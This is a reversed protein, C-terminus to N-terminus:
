RVQGPRDGPRRQRYETINFNCKPCINAPMKPPTIDKGSNALAITYRAQIKMAEALCYQKCEPCKQMAVACQKKGCLTCDIPMQMEGLLEDRIAFTKTFERGCEMCGYHVEAQGKGTADASDSGIFQWVVVGVAAAIIVVLGAVALYRTMDTRDGAFLGGGNGHDPM